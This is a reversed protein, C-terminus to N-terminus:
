EGGAGAVIRGHLGVVRGHELGLRAVKAHFDRTSANEPYEGENIMDSQWLIKEAPLHAILMDRAHPNPGINYIVVEHHADRITRPETITEIKPSRPNRSLRDPDLRSPAAAIKEILPKTTAGTLITTGEAIYPRIGGLHDSHHHSQVLYRVPKGPALERIKELVKETTGSGVPAEAVLVFEDFVVALVNYSWQGTTGSVNELLYVDKALEKAAFPRRWSYDPKAYGEPLTLEKADFEAVPGADEYRYVNEVVGHVANRNRLRMRAPLLIPGIRRHDEFISERVGDGFVGFSTVQEVRKLLGSKADLVLTMVNGNQTAASITEEGDDVGLWRLSARNQLAHAVIRHPLFRNLTPPESTVERWTKAEETLGFGKGDQTATVDTFRFDGAISSDWVIRQRRAPRDIKVDLRMPYAEFPPLATHSQGETVLDSRISLSLKLEKEVDAGGYAAVSRELAQIAKANSTLPDGGAVALLVLLTLMGNLM